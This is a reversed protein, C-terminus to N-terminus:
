AVGEKHPLWHNTFVHQGPGGDEPDFGTLKQFLFRALRVMAEQRDAQTGLTGDTVYTRGGTMLATALDDLLELHIPLEAATLLERLFRGLHQELQPVTLAM